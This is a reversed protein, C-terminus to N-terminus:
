EEESALDLRYFWHLFAAMPGALASILVLYDRQFIESKFHKRGHYTLELELELQTESISVIAQGFALGTLGYM